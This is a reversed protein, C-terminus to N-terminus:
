GVLLALMSYAQHPDIMRTLDTSLGQVLTLGKCRLQWFHTFLHLM